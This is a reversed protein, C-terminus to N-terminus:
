HYDQKRDRIRRARRLAEAPSMKGMRLDQLLTAFEPFEFDNAGMTHMEQLLTQIEGEVAEVTLVCVVTAM